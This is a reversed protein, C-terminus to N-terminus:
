AGVLLRRVGEIPAGEVAHLTLATRARLEPLVAPHTLIPGSLGCRVAAPAVEPFLQAAVRGALDLLGGVSEIVLALAVPDDESALHLVAPTFGGIRANPKPDAYFLRAIASTDGPGMEARVLEGVRSPAEWGQMELLARAVARRGIDYGSGEDGFRWGLGGAYRADGLRQALTTAAAAARAAVFSGTGAHLVLGPGGRTALELVPLSDDAALVEGFGRRGAAFERWFETPGAMCLLTHSITSPPAAPKRKGVPLSVQAELAALARTVVRRAPLPGSINPNSGPALHRAVIRGTEDVLICETKTGGGDVGVRYIM